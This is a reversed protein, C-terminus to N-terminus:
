PAEFQFAQRGRSLIPEGNRTAPVYEFEKLAIIAHDAFKENTASQVEFDRARGDTGITFVIVAEGPVGSMLMSVPYIVPQSKIIRPPTTNEDADGHGTYYSSAEFSFPMRAKSEVPKGGETAPRFVYQKLAAIAQESFRPDPSSEVVFNSAKGDIGVTFVLVVEGSAMSAGLEPPYVVPADSVIEVNTNDLSNTQAAASASDNKSGAGAQQAHAMSTPLWCTLVIILLQRSFM